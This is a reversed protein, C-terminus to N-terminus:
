MVGIERYHLWLRYTGDKISHIAAGTAMQRHTIGLVDRGLRALTMPQEACARIVGMMGPSGVAALAAEYRRKAQNKLIVHCPGDDTSQGGIREGYAPTIPPLKEARTLDREFLCFAQWQDPSIAERRYLSEVPSILRWNERKTKQDNSPAELNEQCKRAQFENPGNESGLLTALYTDSAPQTKPRPPLTQDIRTKTRADM